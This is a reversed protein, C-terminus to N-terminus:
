RSKKDSYHVPLSEKPLGLAELIARSHRPHKMRSRFRSYNRYVTSTTCGRREAVVKIDGYALVARGTEGIVGPITAAEKDIASRAADSLPYGTVKEGFTQELFKDYSSM